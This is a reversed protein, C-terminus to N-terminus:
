LHLFSKKFYAGIIMRFIILGSSSKHDNKLDRKCPNRQDNKCVLKSDIKKMRRGNKYDNQMMKLIVLLRLVM